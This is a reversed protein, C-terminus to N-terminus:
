LRFTTPEFGVGAVMTVQAGAGGSRPRKNALNLLAGLEGFLHLTLRGDVPVLQIEEILGRICEAAAPGAPWFPGARASVPMKGQQASAAVSWAAAGGLLTVFRATEM